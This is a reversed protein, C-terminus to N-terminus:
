SDMIPPTKPAFIYKHGHHHSQMKYCTRMIGWRNGGIVEAAESYTNYEKNDTLDIIKPHTVPKGRKAM